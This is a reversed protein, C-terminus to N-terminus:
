GPLLWQETRSSPGTTRPRSPILFNNTRATSPGDVEVKPSPGLVHAITDGSEMGPAWRLIPVLSGGGPELPFWFPQFFIRGEQDTGRFVPVTQAEPPFPVTRGPTGDPGIVLFRSLARDVPWTTDGPM